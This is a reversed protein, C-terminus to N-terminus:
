FLCLFLGLLRRKMLKEEKRKKGSTRLSLGKGKLGPTLLAHKDVRATYM